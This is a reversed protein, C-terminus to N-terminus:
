IHNTIYLATIPETIVTTYNGLAILVEVGLVVQKDGRSVLYTIKRFKLRISRSARCDSREKESRSMLGADGEKSSYVFLKVTYM